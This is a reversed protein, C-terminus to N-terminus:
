RLRRRVRCGGLQGPRRRRRTAPVDRRPWERMARTPTSSQEYGPGCPLKIGGSVSRSCAALWWAPRAGPGGPQKGSPSPVGRSVVRSSRRAMGPPSCRSEAAWHEPGRKRDLDIGIQADAARVQRCSGNEGLAQRAPGLVVQCGQRSQGARRQDGLLVGNWIAISSAPKVMQANSSHPSTKSVMPASPRLSRASTCDWGAGATDLFRVVSSRFAM